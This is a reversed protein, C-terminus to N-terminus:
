KGWLYKTDIAKSQAALKKSNVPKFGFAKVYYNNKVGSAGAKPGKGLSAGPNAKGLKKAKPALKFAYPTFFQAGGGPTTSATPAGTGATTTEKVKLERLIKKIKNKLDKM